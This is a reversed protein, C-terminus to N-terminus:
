EKKMLKNSMEKIKDKNIGFIAIISMIVVGFIYGPADSFNQISSIITIIIGVYAIVSGHEMFTNKIDEFNTFLPEIMFGLYFFPQIFYNIFATILPVFFLGMCYLLGPVIFMTFLQILGDTGVWAWPKFSVVAGVLTMIPAIIGMLFFLSILPFWGFLFIINNIMKSHPNSNTPILSILLKEFTGRMWSYSLATMRIAWPFLSAQPDLGEVEPPPPPNPNDEISQNYQDIQKQLTLIKKVEPLNYPFSCVNLDFFKKVQDLKAGGKAKDSCNYPPGNIESGAWKLEGNPGNPRYKPNNVNVIIGSSIVFLLLVKIMDSIINTVFGAFNPGNNTNTSDKESSKQDIYDSDDTNDSM